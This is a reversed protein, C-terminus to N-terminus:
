CGTSGAARSAWINCCILSSSGTSQTSLRPSTSKSFSRHNRVRTCTSPRFNDHILRGKIFASQNPRVLTPLVPAVRLSLAKTFIKSFSHILSIPRYDRLEQAEQKKRLLVMFADNVLYFSRSDLSWLANFARIVDPKIIPWALKYFLGTFGDPGPSKDSPMASITM